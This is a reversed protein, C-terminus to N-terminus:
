LVPKEADHALIDTLHCDQKKGTVLFYTVYGLSPVQVEFIVQARAISGDSYTSITKIQSPVSNGKGDVLCLENIGQKEVSVEYDVIDSREWTLSNFVVLPIGRNSCRIHQIFTGLTHSVLDESLRYTDRAHALKVADSIISNRGGWNHEHVWLKGKWANNIAAQPYDYDHLLLDNIASFKEATTLLYEAHRTLMFADNEVSQTGDWWCPMEGIITQIEGKGKQIAGEVAQFCENVSALKVRPASHKKMGSDPM